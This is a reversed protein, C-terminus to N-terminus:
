QCQVALLCFSTFQEYGGITDKRKLILKFPHLQIKYPLDAWSNVVNKSETKDYKKIKGKWKIKM